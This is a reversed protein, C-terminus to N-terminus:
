YVSQCETDDMMKVLAGNLLMHIHSSSNKIKRYNYITSGDNDYRLVSYEDDIASLLDDAYGWVCSDIFTKVGFQQYLWGAFEIALHEDKHSHSLFIDADCKPFWEEEIASADIAGNDMTFMDLAERADAEYGDYLHKGTEYTDFKYFANKELEIKFGAFM